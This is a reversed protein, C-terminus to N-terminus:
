RWPALELANACPLCSQACRQGAMPRYRRPTRPVRLIGRMRRGTFVGLGQRSGARVRKSSGDTSVVDWGQEQLVGLANLTQEIHQAYKQKKWETRLEATLSLIPRPGKPSRWKAGLRRTHQWELLNDLYPRLEARPLSPNQLQLWVRLKCVLAAVFEFVTFLTGMGMGKPDLASLYVQNQMYARGIGTGCGACLGPLLVVVESAYPYFGM